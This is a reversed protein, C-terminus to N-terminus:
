FAIHMQKKLSVIRTAVTYKGIFNDLELEITENSRVGNQLYKFLWENM